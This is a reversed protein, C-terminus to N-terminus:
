CLIVFICACVCIYIEYIVFIEVRESISMKMSSFEYGFEPRRATYIQISYYIHHVTATFSPFQQLETNRKSNLTEKLKQTVLINFDQMLM